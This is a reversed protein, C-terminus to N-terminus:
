GVGSLRAFRRLLAAGADGDAVERLLAEPDLGEARLVERRAELYARIVEADFEPHFQVGWARRGVAFAQHPDLQSSALLRAGPPLALVSEVHTAQVCLPDGLGALLPDQSGAGALRVRISGIERGLPNRGVAGGLAQALLQHGYCIGLLPLEEELARRLWGGTRESWPERDSVMASSGTVVAAAVERPEPLDPTAQVPVVLARVRSVGLGDVIWDEYDGRHAVLDPLSGGTKIVLLPRV